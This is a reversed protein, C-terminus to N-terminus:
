CKCACERAAEFSGSAHPQAFPPREHHHHHKFCGLQPEGPARADPLEQADNETEAELKLCMVANSNQDLKEATRM